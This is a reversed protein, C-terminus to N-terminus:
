LINLFFSIFGAFRNGVGKDYSGRKWFAQMRGQAPSPRRVILSFFSGEIRKRIFITTLSSLVCLFVGCFLPDLQNPASIEM